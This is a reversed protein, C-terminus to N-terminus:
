ILIADDGTNKKEKAKKLIEKWGPKVDTEEDPAETPAVYTYEDEKKQEEKEAKDEAKTQKLTEEAAQAHKDEDDMMNLTRLFEAMSAEEDDTHEAARTKLAVQRSRCHIEGARCGEQARDTIWDIGDATKRLGDATYHGVELVKETCGFLETGMGALFAAGCLASKMVDM